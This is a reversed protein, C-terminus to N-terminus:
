QSALYEKAENLTDFAKLASGTFRVYGKMMVKKLGSIGIVATLVSRNRLIQKGEKKIQSMFDIGLSAGSFDVLFKPDPEKRERLVKAAKKADAILHEQDKLTSFDAFVIEKEKYTIISVPM